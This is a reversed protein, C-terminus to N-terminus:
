VVIDILHSSKASAESQEKRKRRKKEEREKREASKEKGEASFEIQDQQNMPQTTTEEQLAIQQMTQAFQNQENQTKHRDIQAIREVAQTKSLNDQLDLVKAM